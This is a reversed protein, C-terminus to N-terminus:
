RNMFEVDERRTLRAHQERVPVDVLITLDVLAALAPAASYAGDLLIVDAPDLIKPEDKMRYTGDPQM